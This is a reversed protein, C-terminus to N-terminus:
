GWREILADEWGGKGDDVIRGAAQLEAVVAALTADLDLEQRWGLERLWASPAFHGHRGFIERRIGDDPVGARDLAAAPVGILSVEAGLARMAARAHHAWTTAPGVLHCIRGHARPEGALLAFARGADAAHMYQHVAMGSDCLVIPKGARIRALWAAGDWRLQRLVGIRGDFTTSPRVITLPVGSRASWDRYWAEAAAKDRGYGFDPRPTADEPVPWNEWGFGLACVTSCFVLHGMAPLATALLEAQAPNFCMMDIVADFRRGALAASLQARDHRDAHVTEAGPPGGSKRNLVTVARGRALLERVTYLSMTGSGGIVLIRM